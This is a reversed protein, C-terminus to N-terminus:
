KKKKGRNTIREARQIYNIYPKDGPYYYGDEKLWKMISAVFTRAEKLDKKLHRVVGSHNHQARVLNNCMTEMQKQEQETM